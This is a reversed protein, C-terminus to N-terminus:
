AAFRLVEEVCREMDAKTYGRMFRKILVDIVKSYLKDFDEESMEAFSISKPIKFLYGGARVPEFHGAEMQVSKRFADISYEQKSDRNEYAFNILAMYKRHFRYNRPRSVEAKIVEGFRFKSLYEADEPSDPVLCGNARRLHIKMQHLNRTGYGALGQGLGLRRCGPRVCFQAVRNRRHLGKGVLPVPNNSHLSREDALGM